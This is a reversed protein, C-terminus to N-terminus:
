APRTVEPNPGQISGVDGKPLEGEASFFLFLDRTKADGESWVVYFTLIHHDNGTEVYLM